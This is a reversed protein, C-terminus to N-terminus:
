VGFSVLSDTPETMEPELEQGPEQHILINMM